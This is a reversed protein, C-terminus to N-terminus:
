RQILTNNEKFGYHFVLLEKMIKVDNISGKLNDVTSKLIQSYFPLNKYKNIGILLARKTPSAISSSTQYLILSFLLMTIILFHKM